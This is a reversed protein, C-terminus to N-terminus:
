APLQPSKAGNDAFALKENPSLIRGKIDYSWVRRGRSTTVKSIARLLLELKKGQAQVREFVPAICKMAWREDIIVIDDPQAVYPVKEDGKGTICDDYSDTLQVQYWYNLEGDANMKYAGDKEFRGLLIGRLSKGEAPQYFIRIGDMPNFRQFGDKEDQRDRRRRLELSSETSSMVKALPAVPLSELPKDAKKVSQQVVKSENAM